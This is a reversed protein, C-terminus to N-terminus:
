PPQFALWSKVGALCRPLCTFIVILLSPAFSVTMQSAIWYGSTILFVEGLTKRHEPVSLLEWVPQRPVNGHRVLYVKELEPVRSYYILYVIGLIVGAFFAPAM